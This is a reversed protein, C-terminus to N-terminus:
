GAKQLAARIQDALGTAPALDLAKKLQQVGKDTQGTALYSMGLHYRVVALNPLDAAAEEVLTVASRYDGERYSVWGLTDKFQPIPSKRLSAALAQAKDLSAKDSRYDALLTALNNAVIL